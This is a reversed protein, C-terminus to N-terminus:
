LAIVADYLWKLARQKHQPENQMKEKVMPLITRGMKLMEKFNPNAIFFNRGSFICTEDWWQNFLQNFRVRTDTMDNNPMVYADFTARSNVTHYVFTTDDQVVLCPSDKETM